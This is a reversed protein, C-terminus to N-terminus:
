SWLSAIKDGVLYGVSLVLPYFIFLWIVDLISLKSFASWGDNRLIHIFDYWSRIGLKLIIANAVIAIILICIGIIYLRIM